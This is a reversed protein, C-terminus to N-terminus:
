LEVEIVCNMCGFANPVCEICVPDNEWKEDVLFRYEYRGPKLNVTVKWIGNKDMKMPNALTDWNNFDGGLSVKKAEPAPFVFQIKGTSIAKSKAESKVPEKKASKVAEKKTAM